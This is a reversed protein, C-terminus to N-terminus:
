QRKRFYPKYFLGRTANLSGAQCGGDSL